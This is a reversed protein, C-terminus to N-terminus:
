TSHFVAKLSVLPHRISLQAFFEADTFVFLLILAGCGPFSYSLVISSLLLCGLESYFFVSQNMNDKSLPILLACSNEHVRSETQTCTVHVTVVTFAQLKMINSFYFMLNKKPHFCPQYRMLPYYLSSKSRWYAM